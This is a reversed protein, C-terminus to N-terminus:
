AATRFRLTHRCEHCCTSGLRALAPAIRENCSICNFRPEGEAERDRRPALRLVTAAM